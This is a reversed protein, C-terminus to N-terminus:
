SLITPNKQCFIVEQFKLIIKTFNLVIDDKLMIQLRDNRYFYQLNQDPFLQTFDYKRFYLLINADYKIIIKIM